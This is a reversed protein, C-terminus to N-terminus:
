ESEHMFEMDITPEDIRVAIKRIRMYEKKQRKDNKNYFKIYYENSDIVLKTDLKGELEVKWSHNTEQFKNNKCKKKTLRGTKYFTWSEGQKCGVRLFSITREYTWTKEDEGSLERMTDDLVPQSFALTDVMIVIVASLFAVFITM